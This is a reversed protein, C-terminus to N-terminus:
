RVDLRKPLASRRLWRCWCLCWAHRASWSRGCNGAVATGCPLRSRISGVGTTPTMNPMRWCGALM